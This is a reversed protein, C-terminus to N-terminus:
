TLVYEKGLDPGQICILRPADPDETQEEVNAKQEALAKAKLQELEGTEPEARFGSKTSQSAGTNSGWGDDSPLDRNPLAIKAKLDGGSGERRTRATAPRPDDDLGVVDKRVDTHERPESSTDAPTDASAEDIDPASPELTTKQGTEPEKQEESQKLRD